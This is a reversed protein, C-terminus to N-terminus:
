GPGDSTAPLILSTLASVGSTHSQDCLPEGHAVTTTGSAPESVWRNAQRVDHYNMEIRGEM